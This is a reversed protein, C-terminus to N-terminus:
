ETSVLRLSASETSSVVEVVDGETLNQQGLIVVEDGAEIGNTVVVYGGYSSGTEISRYNAIRAGDQTGVVYAGYGAEDLLVATQPVVLVETLRDRTVFLRATMEPKLDGNPNEVRIEIPFTRSAADIAGGVFEIAASLRGEGNPGFEIEVPTGKRITSAYREPVGAVVKVNASNVLRAVPTGMAVQEGVEAIHEEVYGSFPATVRTNDLQERFQALAAESQRLQAESQNLDARVREYEISSIISDQYLPTQRDYTDKALDYQARAADRMAASQRYGAFLMTSDIQAVVGDRGIYAGRPARYLLTGNAEASLIADNSAEVSGTLEIVDVFSTPSVVLTEIRVSRGATTVPAPTEASASTDDQTGGCGMMTLPALALLAIAYFYIPSHRNM